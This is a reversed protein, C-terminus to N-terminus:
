GIILIQRWVLQGQRKYITNMFKHKINNKTLYNWLQQQLINWDYNLYYPVTIVINIKWWFDFVNEFFNTYLDFIKNQNDLFQKNNTNKRIVPWLYWESVILNVSKLFNKSFKERVDHKYLKFLKKPDFSSTKQWWKFNQKAPTINIDSWIFNFGLWNCVFWITGFWVFPDYINVNKSPIGSNVVGINIMINALKSPIMGVQMGSVPKDFDIQSYFNINQYEFVLWVFSGKQFDSEFGIDQINKFLLLEVWTKKVDLNSTQIDLLKYRLAGFEKKLYNGFNKDNTGVLKGSVLDSLENDKIVRWFKVVGGLNPVLDFNCDDFFAINWKIKLNQPQILNIEKLSYEHNKWFIAFYM